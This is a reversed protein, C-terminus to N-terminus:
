PQLAEEVEGDVSIVVEEVTPFQKLTEEIQARISTVRCSGGVEDEIRESFDVRAMGEEVALSQIEVGENISTFYGEEKEEETPGELLESLAARAVAKTEQVEREVPFVKSCDAEPNLDSNGFYISLTMMEPEAFKIPVIVEDDNEPLGSPNAKKLVVIGEESSPVSFELEAKFDVFNETMWDGQAQAPTEALLNGNKDRLEVPFSAEFYWTGKARGEVTLPSSVEERKDPSEVVLEREKVVEKEKRFFTTFETEFVDWGTIERLLLAGGVAAALFVVIIGAIVPVTKRKKDLNNM